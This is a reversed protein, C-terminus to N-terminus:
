RPQNPQFTNRSIQFTNRSIRSSFYQHQFASKNNTNCFIDQGCNTTGLPIRNACYTTQAFTKAVKGQV